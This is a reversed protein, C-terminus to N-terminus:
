AQTFVQRRTQPVFFIKASWIKSHGQAM